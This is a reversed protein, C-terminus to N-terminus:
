FGAAGQCCDRKRFIAYAFDEGQVPYERGSGWLVTSRGFPQCCRGAIKKTQPIPYLMSYKYQRKDMIIQPYYGCMGGDGFSSWQTGARHLKVAARQVLLSSAQVGGIWTQVNGSLPYLQGNCGACWFLSNSPFGATATVCDASCAGQAVVGGFLFADPSMIGELEDDNYTPDLESLYALDFGKNELCSNDILVQLLTMVPNVYWHIHRFGSRTKKIGASDNSSVQGYSSDNVGADIKIGGLSVLCYPTRTVDVQRALEWFSVHAGVKPQGGGACVCVANSSGSVDSNFDEQSDSALTASGFIKIPMVCSWCVDTILNPFKGFCTADALANLSLVSLALTSFLRKIV